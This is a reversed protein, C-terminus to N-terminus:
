TQKRPQKQSQTSADGNFLIKLLAIKKNPFCPTKLLTSLQRPFKQVLMPPAQFHFEVNEQTEAREEIKMM